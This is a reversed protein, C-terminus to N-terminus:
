GKLFALFKTADSVIKDSATAKFSSMDCAHALANQRLMLEMELPLDRATKTPAKTAM